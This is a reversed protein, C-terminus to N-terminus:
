PSSASTGLKVTNFVCIQTVRGCHSLFILSVGFFSRWSKDVLINQTNKWATKRIGYYFRHLFYRSGSFFFLNQARDVRTTRFRYHLHAICIFYTEYVCLLDETCTNEPNEWFNTGWAAVCRCGGPKVHKKEKPELYPLHGFPVTASAVVPVEPM